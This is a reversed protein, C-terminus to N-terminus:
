VMEGGHVGGRRSLSLSFFCPSEGLRGGPAEEAERSRRSSPRMMSGGM